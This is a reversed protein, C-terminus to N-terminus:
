LRMKKAPREVKLNDIIQVDDDDIAKDDVVNSDQNFQLSPTGQYWNKNDLFMINPMELDNSDHSSCSTQPSIKIEQHCNPTTAEQEFHQNFVMTSSAEHSGHNKVLEFILERILTRKHYAEEPPFWDM